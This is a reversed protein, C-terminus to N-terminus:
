GVRIRRAVVIMGAGVLLALIAVAVMPGTEAGTAALEQGSGVGGSGTSGSGVTGPSTGTGSGGATSAAVVTIPVDISTATGPTTVTLSQAGVAIGAPLTVDVSARGAEDTGDVITPDISGTGVLADGLRIEVTTPKPEDTSFLLSSLSVGVTSGPLYGGNAPASLQVGVSRQADDPTATGFEQFWDVMSQLDIRGSDAVGTGATFGLFNDGGSALFSNLVATLSADDALPSGQYSITGIHSGAPAAPDYTYSLGESLGLKLFPRSAGAPQWQEELVQRIQAGTLQMTVLTNAFPQVDAAERYTVVGEGDGSVDPNAAYVLDQRIGGPNMFAIQAGVDTTAWLQVDAVFNGLTSEGGRNETAGDTGVARNFDATIEGLPVSGSVEAEAVADDVIAQVEPDADYLPYSEGDADEATLPLVEPTFSAIQKTDADISLTLLGFAESYQGAQIVPRQYPDFPVVGAYQQHTHGSVIADVDSDLGSVITGFVSDAPIDTTPGSAPAGEHMVTVVVDAEGNSEDGDSLEGAVRNVNDVISEVQLGEIGAPSVLSPLEETTAGIFGIRVGAVEAIWYEDLAASGDDHRVNASLIPFDALPLVRNVLDDYGRDFEHNGAASADLGMTNLVDITPEDEQIFSTFTSAGINDGASVMVTNPNAARVSDVAGALVAAGAVSGDAELRGHFDNITVIDITVPAANAAVAGSLALGAGALLAVGTM